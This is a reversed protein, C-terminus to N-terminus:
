SGAFESWIVLIETGQGPQSILEFRAGISLARERMINVGMQDPRIADPDFGCGNDSVRVSVDGSQCELKVALHSAKAHKIINNLAEQAIRYLVIQAEAPLIRDNEVSFTISVQAQSAVTETLQKLLEGLKKETIAAPRLEMLLTRMEALAGQILRHLEELSRQGEEPRREWIRPLAEALLKASFITQTVADHLDRALRHREDVVATQKVQENVAIAERLAQELEKRETIEEHAVVLRLSGNGAFRTVRGVFWRQKRTTDWRYEMSFGDHAGSMVARIGAAFAQADQAETGTAQECVALYNAGEGANLPALPNAEGFDRWAENVAVIVGREDLVCIGEALAEVGSGVFRESELAAEEQSDAAQQAGFALSDDGKYLTEDPQYEVPYSQFPRKREQKEESRFLRGIGSNSRAASRRRARYRRSQHMSNNLVPSADKTFFSL